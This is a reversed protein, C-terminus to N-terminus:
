KAADLAGDNSGIEKGVKNGLIIGEAAGVIHIGQLSIEDGM